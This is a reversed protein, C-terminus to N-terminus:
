ANRWDRIRRRARATIRRLLGLVPGVAILVDVARKSALVGRTIAAVTGSEGDLAEVVGPLLARYEALHPDFVVLGCNRRVMARRMARVEDQAGEMEPRSPIWDYIAQLDRLVEGSARVKISDSGAWELSRVLSKGVYVFPYQLALRLWLQFDGAAMLEASFRERSSVVHRFVVSSCHVRRKLGLLDGAPARGAEVFERLQDASANLSHERTSENHVFRTNCFAWEARPFWVPNL